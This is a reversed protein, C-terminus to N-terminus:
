QWFPIENTVVHQWDKLQVDISAEDGGVPDREVLVQAEVDDECQLNQRSEGNTSIKAFERTLKTLRSTARRHAKKAEVATLYKHRHQRRWQKQRALDGDIRLFFICFCEAEM